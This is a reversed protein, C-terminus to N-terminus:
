QVVPSALADVESVHGGYFTSHIRSDRPNEGIGELFAFTAQRVLKQLVLRPRV